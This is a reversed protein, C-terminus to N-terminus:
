GVHQKHKIGKERNYDHEELKKSLEAKSISQESLQRLNEKLLRM